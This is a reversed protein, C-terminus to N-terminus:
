LDDVIKERAAYRTLEQISHLDLKRMLNTRHNDVTKPSIYLFEAIQKNSHGEAVMKLIQKERKTLLEKSAKFDPDRDPMADADSFREGLGPSIYRKGALTTRIAELLEWQKSDKLAYGDAGARLAALCQMEAHHISLILVKTQPCIKKMESLADLGTMRPMSLDLLVLDPKLRTVCRIGEIGDAAEGVVEFEEYDSLIARLGDRLITHDEVIVITHKPQARKSM